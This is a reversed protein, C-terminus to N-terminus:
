RDISWVVSVGRPLTEADTMVTCDSCSDPFLQKQECNSCAGLMDRTQELDQKLRSLVEIRRAMLDIQKDLRERVCRSADAGSDSRGKVELLDRIEELSLGAARLESVLSLKRLESEPFLRHGGDTRQLPRLIGAEEYFRVTRLTNDSLRAMDGTTLLGDKRKSGDSASGGTTALSQGPSQGGEPSRDSNDSM